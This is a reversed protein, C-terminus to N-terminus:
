DMIPESKCAWSRIINVIVAARNWSYTSMNHEGTAASLRIASLLPVQLNMCVQYLDVSGDDDM